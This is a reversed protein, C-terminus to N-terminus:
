VLVLLCYDESWPFKVIFPPDKRFPYNRINFSKSNRRWNSSFYKWRPSLSSLLRPIWILDWFPRNSVIYISVIFHLPSNSFRFFITLTPEKAIKYSMKRMFCRYFIRKRRISEELILPFFNFRTFGRGVVVRKKM